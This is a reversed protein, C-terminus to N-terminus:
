TEVNRAICKNICIKSVFQNYDVNLFFCCDALEQEAGVVVTIQQLLQKLHHSTRELHTIQKNRERVDEDGVYGPGPPLLMLIEDLQEQDAGM